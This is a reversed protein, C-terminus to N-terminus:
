TPIDLQQQQYTKEKERLIADQADKYLLDYHWRSHHDQLSECIVRLTDIHRVEISHFSREWIPETEQRSNLICANIAQKCNTSFWNLIHPTHNRYSILLHIHNPMVVFEQIMIIKSVRQSSKLVAEAAKGLDTPKWIYKKNMSQISGLTPLRHNTYLTLLQNHLVPRSYGLHTHKMM